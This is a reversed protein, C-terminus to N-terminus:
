GQADIANQRDAVNERLQDHEDQSIRRTNLAAEIDIRIRNCDGVTKADAIAAVFQDLVSVLSKQQKPAAKQASGPPSATAELTVTNCADQTQTEQQTAAQEQTTAVQSAAEPLLEAEKILDAIRTTTATSTSAVRIPENAKDMEERLYLGALNSPFAKRLASAEACKVIMGAPDIKWRSKGTDFTKLNVSDYSVHSQDKRFVKAWGGIITEGPLVLDGQRETVVSNALVVVGSEMGDYAGHAEARKIFAQHATILSFNPGDQGDYGVLYADRVWPNLGSAKCLMIFGMVDKDTPYKGSRTPTCLFQKVREVTLSIETAEGLPIFSIVDPKPRAPAIAKEGNTAAITSV